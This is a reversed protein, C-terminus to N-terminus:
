RIGRRRAGDPGNLKFDMECIKSWKEQQKRHKKQQHSSIDHPLLIESLLAVCRWRVPISMRALAAQSPVSPLIACAELFSQNEFKNRATHKKQHYISVTQHRHHSRTYIGPVSSAQSVNPMLSPMSNWTKTQLWATNSQGHHLMDDVGEIWALLPYILMMEEFLGNGFGNVPLIFFM